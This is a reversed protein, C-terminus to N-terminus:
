LRKIDVKKILEETIDKSLEVAKNYEIQWLKKCLKCILYLKNDIIVKDCCGKCNYCKM